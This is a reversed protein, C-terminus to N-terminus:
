VKAGTSFAEFDAEELDPASEARKLVLVSDVFRVAADKEFHAYGQGEATRLLWLLEGWVRVMSCAISQGQHSVNAPSLSLNNLTSFTLSGTAGDAEITLGHRNMKSVRVPRSKFKFYTLHELSEVLAKRAERVSMERSPVDLRQTSECGTTGWPVAAALLLALRRLAQRTSVRGTDTKLDKM